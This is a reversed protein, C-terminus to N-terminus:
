TGMAAGSSSAEMGTGDGWGRAWQSPEKEAGGLSQDAPESAHADAQRQQQKLVLERVAAGGVPMSPPLLRLLQLLGDGPGHGFPSCLGSPSEKDGLPLEESLYPPVAGCIRSSSRRLVEAGPIRMLRWIDGWENGM